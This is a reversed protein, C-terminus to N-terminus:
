EAITSNRCKLIWYGIIAAIPLVGFAPLTMGPYLIVFASFGALPIRFALDRLRKKSFTAQFSFCFGLTAVLVLVFAALQAIGPELVLQPKTFIGVMLVFLGVCLGIARFLTQMFSANAIKAAVAAVVSTPPTLEGWVALFFAFFHVVWPDVGVKIMPPAIVLATIIYTPAPPLGTGVIAGFVFGVLVMTALNVGAAEMLLFGIKPPVGTIVFAGTMISLTALLLTLEVTMGTFCEVLQVFPKGLTRLKLSGRSRWESLLFIASLLITIGIFIRVAAIMPAMGLVAMLAILGAVVALYVFIKIWDLGHVPAAEIPIASSMYSRYRVSILYVSLSVGAFYILAPAYGRAVVDFYSRGLFDAMLFASIGMIPPMLQGGLSSATEIAAATARPLGSAIMAPITASGTTAANAAGSGSVAAVGFSGIVAAQPLAHSSKVAIRSAITLLSDVCGFARLASLVLLFSGILTLALQPLRSYVGTTIEVSMASFVRTWSLGPHGFLGPVAWGYVTYLILLINLIFLEFYKKRTFEMVLLFMFGGVILDTRSWMGARVTRINMFELRIYVLIFICAAAYAAALGYNGIKGLKPYFDNNRLSDLTFLIFTVPVLTVALMTPGGIGTLYYRFVYISFGAAVTLFLHDVWAGPKFSAAQKLPNEEGDLSSEMSVQRDLAGVRSTSVDAAVAKRNQQGMKSEM